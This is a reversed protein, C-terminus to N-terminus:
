YIVSFIECWNSGLCCFSICYSYFPCILLLWNLFLLTCFVWCLLTLVCTILIKRFTASSNHFGDVTKLLNFLTYVLCVHGFAAYSIHFRAVVVCFTVYFKGLLAPCLCLAFRVLLLFWVFLQTLIAFGLLLLVFLLYTPFTNVCRQTMVSAGLSNLHQELRMFGMPQSREGNQSM